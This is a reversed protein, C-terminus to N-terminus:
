TTYQSNLRVYEETVDSGWATAEAEGMGLDVRLSVERPALCGEALTRDYLQPAGDRFMCLEDGDPSGLYLTTSEERMEAGSNGVTLRVLQRLVDGSRVFFVTPEVSVIRLRDTM